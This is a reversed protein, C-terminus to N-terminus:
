FETGKGEQTANLIPAVPKGSGVSLFGSSRNSPLLLNLM